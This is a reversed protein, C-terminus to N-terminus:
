SAVREAKAVREAEWCATVHGDDDLTRLRPADTLCREV